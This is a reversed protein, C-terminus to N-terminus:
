KGIKSKVLFPRKMKESCGIANRKGSKELPVLDAVSKKSVITNRLVDPVDRQGKLKSRRALM